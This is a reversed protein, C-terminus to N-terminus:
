PLAKLYRLYPFGTQSSVFGTLKPDEAIGYNPTLIPIMPVDQAWIGQGAAIASLRKSGDTTSNATNVYSDFSSNCFGAFNSAGTCVGTNALQYGADPVFPATSTLGFQVKHALMEAYFTADSPEQTLQVNIGVKALAERIILATQENEPGPNALDYRLNISFGTSYGAAALLAKAKAANTSYPWLKPLYYQLIPSIPGHSITATDGYARKNITTYPLAWAIAQRVRPDDFPKSHDNMVLYLMRSSRAIERKVGKKGALKIWQLRPLDPVLQVSGQQVLAQRNGPDPVARIVISKFGPKGAWYHPNAALTVSQGPSFSTVNYAGFGASHTALWQTAWQDSATAHAKAETSDFPAEWHFVLVKLLNPSIRTLNWRFTRNDVVTIPNSLDIGAQGFAFAGGLSKTAINRQVTWQVDATSLTHGYPSKVGKRLTIQLYKGSTSLKWSSVLGLVLKRPNFVPADSGAVHHVAYFFYPDLVAQLVPLASAQYTSPDLTTPVEQVAMVMTQRPASTTAGGSVALLASAAAAVVILVVLKKRM